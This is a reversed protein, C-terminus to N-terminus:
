LHRNEYDRPTDIDRYYVEESCYWPKARNPNNVIIGRCGVMDQHSLLAQKFDGPFIVPNGRRENANPYVINFGSSTGSTSYQEILANYHDTTLWPMDGLCIMYADGKAVKIGAQISTTMGQEYDPNFVLVDTENFELFTYFIDLDENAVLIVESVKSETLAMFTTTLVSHDMFPLLLKNPGEM